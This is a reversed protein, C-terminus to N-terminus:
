IIVDFAVSELATDFEQRTKVCNLECKLGDAKLARAVLTRDGLNDEIYLVKLPRGATSTTMVHERFQGASGRSCPIAKEGEGDASRQGRGAASKEPGASVGM